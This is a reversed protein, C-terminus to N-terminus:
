TKKKVFCYYTTMNLSLYNNIRYPCANKHDNDDPHLRLNCQYCYTMKKITTKNAVIFIM